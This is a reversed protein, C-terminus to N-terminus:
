GGGSQFYYALAIGMTAAFLQILKNNILVVTYRFTNHPGQPKISHLFAGLPSTSKISHFPM